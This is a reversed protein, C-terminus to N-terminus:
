ARGSMPGRPRVGATAAVGTRPDTWAASPYEARSQWHEGDWMILEVADVHCRLPLLPALEAQLADYAADQTRRDVHRADPRGADEGTLSQGRPLPLPM